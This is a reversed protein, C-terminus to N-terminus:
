AKEKGNGGDPGEGRMGRKYLDLEIQMARTVNEITEFAKNCQDLIRMHQEHGEIMTKMFGTIPRTKEPESTVSTEPKM